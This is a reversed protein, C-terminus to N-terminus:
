KKEKPKGKQEEVSVKKEGVPTADHPAQRAPLWVLRQQLEAELRRLGCVAQLRFEL